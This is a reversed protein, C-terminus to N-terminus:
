RSVVASGLVSTPDAPDYLAATQGPAVPGIAPSFVLRDGLFTAAAAEGHSRLQALVPSELAVAENVWTVTAPDLPLERIVADDPAAVRVERRTVDIAVAVRRRGEDDVGLRKRQGVTVLELDEVSGVVAGTADDVIAGVSLTSRAALFARRGGSSEIFCTDQSEPKEATRLGAQSALARVEAKTMEGVPLLVSALQAQTLMSLVYSQDKAEDIGRHLTAMGKSRKIRAHHGTALADFGLRRTADLLADFKLHRNCEICPNPTRGELHSAVYPEVVLADFAETMNFVHHDIGLQGAVRRADDVDAVSCCGQDSPGGWLKLTVGAVDHGQAKCIAAAASSDVGGSMAVLVNM